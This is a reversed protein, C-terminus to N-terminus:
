LPSCSNQQVLIITRELASGIPHMWILVCMRNEISCVQKHHRLSCPVLIQYRSTRTNFFFVVFLPMTYVAVTHAALFPVQGDLTMRQSSALSRSALDACSSGQSAELIGPSAAPGLVPALGLRGWGVLSLQCASRNVHLLTGLACLLPMFTHWQKKHGQFCAEAHPSVGM